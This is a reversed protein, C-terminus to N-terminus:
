YEGIFVGTGGALASTLQGRQVPTFDSANDVYVYTANREHTIVGSALRHPGDPPRVGIDTASYDAFFGMKKVPFKRFTPEPLLRYITPRTAVVALIRGVIYSSYEEDTMGTIRPIDMLEGWTKLFFGTADNLNSAETVARRQFRRHWEVANYISGQNIDNINLIPTLEPRNVDGILDRFVPGSHNFLPLYSYIM